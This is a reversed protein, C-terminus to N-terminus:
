DIFWGENALRSEKELIIPIIASYASKIEEIEDATKGEVAKFLVMRAESSTMHENFIDTSVM